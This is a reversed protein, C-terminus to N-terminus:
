EAMDSLVLKDIELLFNEAKKNGILIAIEELSDGPYSPLDLSRGRFAPRMDGLPITITEWDGSTEFYHIYSYYEEINSKVRFQYRKGDGKLLLKIYPYSDVQLTPFRYRISSFGGNNELSVRGKFVANGEENIVLTGKSLGGMVGDNVVTWNDLKAQKTFNFLMMDSWPYLITLLVLSIFLKM